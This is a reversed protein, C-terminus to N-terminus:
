AKREVQEVTALLSSSPDVEPRDLRDNYRVPFHQVSPTVSGVQSASRGEFILGSGLETFTEPSAAEFHSRLVTLGVRNEQSILRQDGVDIAIRHLQNKLQLHADELSGAM